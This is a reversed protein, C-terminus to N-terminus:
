NTPGNTNKGGPFTILKGIGEPMVTYLLADMARLLIMNAAPDTVGELRLGVRLMMEVRQCMPDAPYYRDDGPAEEDMLFDELDMDDTDFDDM